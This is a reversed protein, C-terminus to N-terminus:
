IASHAPRSDPRTPTQATLLPTAVGIRQGPHEVSVEVTRRHQQHGPAARQRRPAHPVELIEILHRQRRWDAFVGLGYGAGLANGFIHVPGPLGRQRPSRSRHM